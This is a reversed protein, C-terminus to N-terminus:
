DTHDVSIHIQIFQDLRLHAVLLLVGDVIQILQVFRDADHAVASKRRRSASNRSDFLSLKSLHKWKSSLSTLKLLCSLGVHDSAKGLWVTSVFPCASLPSSGFQNSLIRSVNITLGWFPSRQQSSVTLQLEQCTDDIPRNRGGEIKLGNLPLPLGLVNLMAEHSDNATVLSLMNTSLSSCSLFTWDNSVCIKDKAKSLEVMSIHYSLNMACNM